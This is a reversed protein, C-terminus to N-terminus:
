LPPRDDTTRRQLLMEELAVRDTPLPFTFSNPPARADTRQQADSDCALRENVLAAQQIITPKTFFDSISLGVSFQKRLECVIEIALLSHGGLAFFNQHVGVSPVNFM